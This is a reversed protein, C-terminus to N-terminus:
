MYNEFGQWRQWRAVSDSLWYTVHPLSTVLTVVFPSKARLILSFRTFPITGKGGLPHRAHGM